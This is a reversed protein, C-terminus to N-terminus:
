EPQAEGASPADKRRRRRFLREVRSADREAGALPVLLTVLGELQRNLAAVGDNMTNVRATLESLQAILVPLSGAVGDLLEVQRDASEAARHLAHALQDLDREAAATTGLPSHEVAEVEGQEAVGLASRLLGTLPSFISM